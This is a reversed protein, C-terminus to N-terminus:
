ITTSIFLFMSVLIFLVFLYSGINNFFNKQRIIYEDVSINEKTKINSSNLFFSGVFFLFSLTLIVVNFVFVARYKEIIKTFVNGFLESAFAAAFIGGIVGMMTKATDNQQEFKKDYSNNKKKSMNCFIALSIGYIFVAIFKEKEVFIIYLCNAAAASSFTLIFLLVFFYNLFIKKSM